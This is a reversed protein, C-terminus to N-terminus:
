PAAVARALAVGLAVAAVGAVVTSATYVLGLWKEGHEWLSVTEFAFASYTTYGGLFGNVVLLRYHPHPLSRALFTALFGIAFSGSVNVVFTAWPFPPGAWRSVWVGLFYRANVGLTGGLTLMLVPLWGQM